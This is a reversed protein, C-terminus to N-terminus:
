DSLREVSAIKANSLHFVFAQDLLQGEAPCTFMGQVAESKTESTEWACGELVYSVVVALDEQAFDPATLKEIRATDGIRAADILEAVLDTPPTTCGTAILSVMGIAVLLRVIRLQSRSRHDQKMVDERDNGKSFLLL